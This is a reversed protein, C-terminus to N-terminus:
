ESTKEALRIVWETFRRNILSLIGGEMTLPADAQDAFFYSIAPLIISLILFVLLIDFIIHNPKEVYVVEKRANTPGGYLKKIIDSRLHAASNDSVSINEETTSIRESVTYTSGDDRGPGLEESVITTEEKLTNVDLIEERSISNRTSPTTKKLSSPTSGGKSQKSPTNIVDQNEESSDSQLSEKHNNATTQISDYIDEQETLSFM